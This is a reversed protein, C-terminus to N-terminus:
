YILQFEPLMAMMWLLDEVGRPSVPTGIAQLATMREKPTPARGLAERFLRDVVAEPTQKKDASWIPGGRQLLAALRDGNTLELTQLTTAVSERRTVVQDRKPRGLAVMLPDLKRTGARKWSPRQDAAKGLLVVQEIADLLQEASMRRVLPGRFVYDNGQEDKRAEVSAMQYARSTLIQRMTHKLDYKHSVTDVAMWDLLDASWPPLDMEDVPEVLGRGFFVAWLRNVVTRPFRGNKEHTIFKAL